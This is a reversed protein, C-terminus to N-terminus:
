LGFWQFLVRAMPVPAIKLLEEALAIAPESSRHRYLHYYGLSRMQEYAVKALRESAFGLSACWLGAISEIYERGSNDYVRCGDGHTIVLPGEQQHKRLNTQMHVLNAVDRAEISNPIYTV